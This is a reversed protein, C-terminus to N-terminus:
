GKWSIWAENLCKEAFLLFGLLWINNFIGILATWSDIFVAFLKATEGSSLLLPDLYVFCVFSLLQAATVKERYKGWLQATKLM